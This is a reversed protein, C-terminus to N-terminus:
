LEYKHHFKKEMTLICSGAQKMNATIFNPVRKKTIKWETENGSDVLITKCGAHKGAEIDDLIDGIMWSQTLDIALEEAAKYFLGSAPKRCDCTIAYKAVTGQMEPPLHPCYYFGDLRVGYDALLERLNDAIKGLGEETFLGRAIGSQNSVVILSFGSKQLLHLTEGVYPLLVQKKIEVNYPVNEVLTGDKDLFIAKKM